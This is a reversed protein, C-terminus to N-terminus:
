IVVLVSELTTATNGPFDKDLSNTTNGNVNLNKKVIDNNTQNKDIEKLNKTFISEM